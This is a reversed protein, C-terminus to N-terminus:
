SFLPWLPAIAIMLFEGMGFDQCIEWVMWGGSERRIEGQKEIMVLVDRATTEPGVEVMNFRQFDGIFIRMQSSNNNIPQSLRLPTVAPPSPQQPARNSLPVPPIPPPAIGEDASVRQSRTPRGGDFSPWASKAHRGRDQEIMAGTDDSRRTRSSTPRSFYSQPAHSEQPSRVPLPPAGSTTAPSITGHFSRMHRLSTAPERSTPAPTRNRRSHATDHSFNLPATTVPHNTAVPAMRITDGSDARLSPMRVTSAGPAPHSSDNQVSDQQQVRLLRRALDDPAVGSAQGVTRARARTPGVVVTQPLSRQALLAAEQSSSMMEPVAYSASLPPRLTMTRGREGEQAVQSANTAIKAPREARRRQREDRQQRRISKQADLAHPLRQALPVDDDESDARKSTGKQQGQPVFVGKQGNRRQDRSGLSRTKNDEGYGDSSSTDEDSSDASPTSFASGRSRDGDGGDEGRGGNWRGAGRDEGYDSESSDHDAHQNSGVRQNGGARNSNQSATGGRGNSYAGAYSRTHNMAEASGVDVGAAHGLWVDLDDVDSIARGRHGAGTESPRLTGASSGPEFGASKEDFPKWGVMREFSFAKELEASLDSLRSARPARPGEERAGLGDSSGFSSSSTEYLTLSLEDGLSSDYSSESVHRSYGPMEDQASDFSPPRTADEGYFSRYDSGASNSRSRSTRSRGSSPSHSRARSPSLVFIPDLEAPTSLPPLSSGDDHEQELPFYEAESQEMSPQSRNSGSVHIADLAAQRRDVPFHPDITLSDPRTQTRLANPFSPSASLYVGLDETTMFPSHSPSPTSQARHSRAINIAALSHSPLGATTVAAVALLADDHRACGQVSIDAESFGEGGYNTSSNPTFSISRGHEHSISANEDVDAVALQPSASYSSVEADPRQTPKPEPKGGMLVPASQQLAPIVPTSSRRLKEYDVSNREGEDAETITAPSRDDESSGSSFDSM